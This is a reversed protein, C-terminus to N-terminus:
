HLAEIIADVIAQPQRFPIFHDSDVVRVDPITDIAWRRQAESTLADTRGLIVTTDVDRWAAREAPALAADLSMPRRPHSRLHDIVESPMTAMTPDSDPFWDNDLVTTGDEGFVIHTLDLDGAPAPEADDTPPLGPISSVYVLRVIDLGDVDLDTLVGGGYSWGAVVTPGPAGAVADRLLAVDVARTAHPSRHSPLDLANVRVGGDVLLDEVWRWDAPSSWAGHVLVADGSTAM